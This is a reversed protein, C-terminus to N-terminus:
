RESVYAETTWQVEGWRVHERGRSHSSGTLLAKARGNHMFYARQSTFPVSFELLWWRCLSVM